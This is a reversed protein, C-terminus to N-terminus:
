KGSNHVVEHIASLLSLEGSADNELRWFMIGSARQQALSTKAQITPIGNYNVVVGAFTTSDLQAAAPNERVIKAYSIDIPQAYFPVGLTAKESPLGRGLWYDLASRAFELSSHETGKNDYAMINVFDLMAFSGTPIGEAHPGLAAVAATLLKDKPLALHLEQMLSLFDQSSQEDKPYEWDMDVGDLHYQNIIALLDTVFTSRTAPNAALETFQKDWGWGGVSILVKVKQQHALSVLETIKWPNLLPAFTGDANPIIFAFNIHTLKSYPIISPVVEDTVYAIVRFESLKPTPTVDLASADSKDISCGCLIVAISAILSLKLFLYSPM